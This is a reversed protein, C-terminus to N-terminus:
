EGGSSLIDTWRAAMPEGERGSGCGTSQRRHQFKGDVLLGLLTEDEVGHEESSGEEDPVRSEGEEEDLGRSRRQNEESEVEGEHPPTLGNWSKGKLEVDPQNEETPSTEM